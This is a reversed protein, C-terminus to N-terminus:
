PRWLVCRKCVIWVEVSMKNDLADIAAQAEAKNSFKVFGCGKSTGDPGRLIVADEVTGYRSFLGRLYDETTTYTLMGIFLKRDEGKVESDALKVQM